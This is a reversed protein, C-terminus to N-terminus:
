NMLSKGYVRPKGPIINRGRRKRNLIYAILFGWVVVVLISAVTYYATTILSARLAKDTLARAYNDLGSFGIMDPRTFLWKMLSARITFFVPYVHIIGLVAVLPVILYIPQKRKNM